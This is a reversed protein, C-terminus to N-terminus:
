SAKHPDTGTLFSKSERQLDRWIESTRSVLRIAKNFLGVYVGHVSPVNATLEVKQTMQDRRLQLYQSNPDVQRELQHILRSIECCWRIEELHGRLRAIENADADLKSLLTNISKIEHEIFVLSREPLWDGLERAARKRSSLGVLMQLHKALEVARAPDSLDRWELWLDLLQFLARIRVLKATISETAKLSKDLGLSNAM